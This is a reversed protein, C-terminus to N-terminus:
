RVFFGGMESRFSLALNQRPALDIAFEKQYDFGETRDTDRLRAVLRHRGPEVVFRQYIRSPGDKSLGTPPLSDRYLLRGDILIEIFVPLRERSCDMPKRMNPALKALEERTRRRCVEKRKAGHSFSVKIQAKDPPFVEYTPLRSFYGLLLMVLGLIVAQGAYQLVRNM